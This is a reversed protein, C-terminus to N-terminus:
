ETVQIWQGKNRAAYEADYMAEVQAGPLYYSGLYSANVLLKFTKTENKKLDFYHNVRDDRIDSYDAQAVEGYDTFRTNIVEWGSPLFTTLAVDKIPEANTNTVIVEMVLNTGQAVKDVVMSGGKKDTFRQSLRLNRGYTKEQGIPLQGSNSLTVFLTNEGQNKLQLSNHGPKVSINRIATAKETSIKGNSGMDLQIGKGGVGKAFKSLALLAYATTQTSMWKTEQLNKAIAEAMKQANAMDELIVYTELAMAKNRTVSGYTRYHNRESFDPKAGQLMEKAVQKQGMLAYAAALRYKANKSLTTKQRLRNMAGLEANGSLALTFLRYAQNLDSHNTGMRWRKATSRQYDLWAQKFGIPAVYGQKEAELFFHGVYSTGWDNARNQSPWYGFGGNPLQNTKLRDIAQKIHKEAKQKRDIDLDFMDDLYLQPFAASTIQELCGHPYRILNQMRGNFNMPPLSSIDLEAGNSGAVGFTDWALSTESKPQLVLHQLTSSIPNPNGLDMELDYSAREGAGSAKINLKGIAVGETVEMDFYVIKEGTQDFIVQQSTEGLNKFGSLGDIKVTVKKVKPEMAFVTVPVKIKEGPSAKRPLSALVMLPKKVPTSKEAFGYSGADSDHAVVMTRVAGIYKPINLSHTDTKGAALTFPGLHLVMPKFRNAKKNNAGALAGDGGIAFIHNIRGGYAGVVDDFVDWTKVGLAEKTYFANWPDPTKFRTLDLLGEDVVALTYVMPKGQKERVKVTVETEPRLTNPMQIEPALRTEPNEVAIPVVGYLRMPADNKTNAHPQLLSIHIFVNPTYLDTIPLEVKTEGEQTNVWQAELVENGNEVTLLARSGLSSPFSIQATEGTQYTDKDTSFRLMSAETPDGKRAKGAWGPWDIYITQGTAHGGSPDEVRVLYRGWDPYKLEFDFHAKGQTDTDLTKSFVEEHYRSSQYNSLNDQGSEWWWRWKVKHISVKLGQAAKPKGEASVTQLEFRHKTDTLLMNRKSDGKPVLLGVYTDYPAYEATFVDTSFDGGDEYVKTLFAVNLKGPAKNELKPRMSFHAKGESDLKGKFLEQEEGNFSRSPDDFVHAPYATFQTRKQDFKASVDLDLNRATAGHLWKVAIEAAINEQITKANGKLQAQIKLRNPKITEIRLSKTFIAGGVSLKVLWPGTQDTAETKLRFYYLNEANTKRLERKILKQYPDFLELKIPHGSPLPNAKDNLMFSLHM